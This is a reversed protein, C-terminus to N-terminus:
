FCVKGLIECNLFMKKLKVDLLLNKEGEGESKKGEVWKWHMLRKFFLNM